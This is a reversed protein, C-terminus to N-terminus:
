RTPTDSFHGSDVLTVFDAIGHGTIPRPSYGDFYNLPVHATLLLAAVIVAYHRHSVNVQRDGRQRDGLLLWLVVSFNAILLFAWREMDWGAAALATPATASALALITTAGSRRSIHGSVGTFLLLAVLVILALPLLYWLSDSHQTEGGM